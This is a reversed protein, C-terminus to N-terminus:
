NDVGLVTPQKSTAAHHISILLSSIGWSIFLYPIICTAVSWAINCILVTFALCRQMEMVTSEFTPSTLLGESRCSKNHSVSHQANLALFICYFCHVAHLYRDCLFWNWATNRYFVVLMCVHLCSIASKKKEGQGKGRHQVQIFTLTYMCLMNKRTQKHNSILVFLSVIETQSLTPFLFSLGYAYVLPM